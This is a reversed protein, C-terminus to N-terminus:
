QKIVKIVEQKGDSYYAKVLYTGPPSDLFTITTENQHITVKQQNIKLGILNFVEISKVYIQDNSWWKLNLIETLPNPYAVLKRESLSADTKTETIISEFGNDRTAAIATTAAVSCNICVYQRLIQNGAADYQFNLEQASLKICCCFLFMLILSTKKMTIQFVLM